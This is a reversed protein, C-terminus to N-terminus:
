SRSTPPSTRCRRRRRRGMGACPGIRGRHVTRARPAPSGQRDTDGAAATDPWTVVVTDNDLGEAILRNSYRQTQIRSVAGDHVQDGSRPRGPLAGRRNWSSRRRGSDASQLYRRMREPSTACKLTGCSGSVVGAAFAWRAGPVFLVAAGFLPPGKGTVRPSRGM